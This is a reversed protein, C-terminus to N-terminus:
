KVRYMVYAGEAAAEVRDEPLAAMYEALAEASFLTTVVVAGPRALRDLLADPTILEIGPGDRMAGHATYLEYARPSETVLVTDGDLYFDFSASYDRFFLVPGAPQADRTRAAIAQVGPSLNPHVFMALNGAAFLAIGACAALPAYLPRAHLARAALAGAGIALPPYLPLTYHTMTTRTAVLIAVGGAFAVALLRAWRETRARWVLYGLGAIWVPLLYREADVAERAVRAATFDGVIGTVVRKGYNPLFSEGGAALSVHWALALAAFVAAGAWLARERLAGRDHWLLDVAIPVVVFAVMLSKALYAAGCLAGVGVLRARPGDWSRVYAWLVACACVLFVADMRVSRAATYFTPSALLALGAVLGAVPARALRAALAGTLLVAGLGALAAPLRLALETVGLVTVSARLAVFHLPPYYAHLQADYWRYDLWTGDRVMRRAAWAYVADDGNAISGDGLWAFLAVAAIGLLAAGYATRYM